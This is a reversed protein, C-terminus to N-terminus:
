KKLFLSKLNKMCNRNRKNKRYTDIIKQLLTKKKINSEKITLHTGGYEKLPMFWDSELINFMEPKKVSSMLLLTQDDDMFGVDLLSNMSNKLEIWLKNALTKPVYIPAGMIYVDYSQIIQFIPKQDYTNKSFVTIKKDDFNVKLEFDFEESNTFVDGGHNFGFDLWCIMETTLGKQVADNICWSKLLMVYNYDANNDAPNPMYRYKLFEQNKAVNRLRQLIDPELSTYDDIIVIKTKDKLGFEDRIDLVKKGMESNTYVILNNRIRAWFKFQEVYKENSRAFEGEFNKRGIDFFATVITVEKNNM